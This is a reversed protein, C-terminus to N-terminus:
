KGGYKYQYIKCKSCVNQPNFFGVRRISSCGYGGREAHARNLMSRCTTRIEKQPLPPNNMSNWEYLIQLTDEMSYGNQVLVSAIVVLTDNRNGEAVPESLLYKMCIPLKQPADAIIAHRVTNARTERELSHKIIKRFQAAAKENLEKSPEYEQQPQKALELLDQRRINRIKDYTVPIKYLGTKANISNPLRILRRNDYIKTDLLDGNAIKDKAHIVFYKYLSGLEKNPRIGLVSPSIFIHFGKAGSFYIKIENYNIGIDVNLYAILSLLAMRVREFSEDTSIDGDIDFYLPSIYKTGPERNANNFIYTCYFIDKNGNIQRLAKLATGTKKLPYVKNRMFYGDSKRGGFEAFLESM